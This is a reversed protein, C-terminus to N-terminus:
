HNEQLQIGQQVTCIASLYGLEVHNIAAEIIFEVATMGRAGDVDIGRGSHLFKQKCLALGLWADAPISRPLRNQDEM